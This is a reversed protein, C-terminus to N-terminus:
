FIRRATLLKALLLTQMSVLIDNVLSESQSETLGLESCAEDVAATINRIHHPAACIHDDPISDLELSLLAGELCPALGNLNFRVQM